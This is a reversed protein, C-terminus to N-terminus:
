IAQQVYRLGDAGVRRVARFPQNRRRDVSGDPHRRVLVGRAARRKEDGILKHAGSRGLQEETQQALEDGNIADVRITEWLRLAADGADFPRLAGLEPVARELADEIYDRQSGRSM